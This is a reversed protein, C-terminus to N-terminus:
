RRAGGWGFDQGTVELHHRRCLTRGNAVTHAGGRSVPVIHDVELRETSGCKTCRYGDRELVTLRVPQPMRSYSAKASAFPERGGGHARCRSQGPESLHWPGPGLCPRRSPSM